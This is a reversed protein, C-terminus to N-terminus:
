QLIYVKKVEKYRKYLGMLVPNSLQECAKEERM